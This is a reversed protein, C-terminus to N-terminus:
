RKSAVRALTRRVRALAAPEAGLSAM